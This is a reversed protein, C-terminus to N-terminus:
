TIIFLSKILKDYSCLKIPKAHEFGKRKAIFPVAAIHM